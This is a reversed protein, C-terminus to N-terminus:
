TKDGPILLIDLEQAVNHTAPLSNLVAATIKCMCSSNDWLSAMVSYYDYELILYSKSRDNQRM